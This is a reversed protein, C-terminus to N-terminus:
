SLQARGVSSSQRTIKPLVKEIQKHLEELTGDNTVVFDARRMCDRINQRFADDSDMERKEDALFKDYTVHDLDSKRSRVREYRVKAPADVAIILAGKKKLFDVEGKARVSEIIANGGKAAATAYIQEIIYSPGHTTRLENALMTMEDRNVTLGRRKLEGTLFDRVSFHVFGKSRLFASVEGKGSGLTGTIGVIKIKIEMSGNDPISGSVETKGLRREVLQAVVACRKRESRARTSETPVAILACM